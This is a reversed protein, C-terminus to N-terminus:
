AMGSWVWLSGGRRLEIVTGAGPELDEPLDHTGEELLGLDRRDRGDSDTIVCHCREPVSIARGGFRFGRADGLRRNSIFSRARSSGIGPASFMSDLLLEESDPSGTRWAKREVLVHTRIRDFLMVYPFAKLSLLRGAGVHFCHADVGGVPVCACRRWFERTAASPGDVLRDPSRFAGLLNRLTLRDKWQSMYNWVEVGDFLDPVPEVTWPLARTADLGSFPPAAGTERPHAAIARGGSERVWATYERPSLSAPPLEDIGYALLHNFGQDSDNIEVGALVLVGDHWGSHGERLAGLSMHDNIGIFDLGAQGAATVIEEVSGTGDSHTTHVHLCGIVERLDASSGSRSGRDERDEEEGTAVIKPPAKGAAFSESCPPFSRSSIPWSALTASRSSPRKETM